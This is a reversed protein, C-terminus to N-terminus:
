YLKNSKLINDKNKPTKLKRKLQFKNLMAEFGKLLGGPYIMTTVILIVGYFVMRFESLPRFIEPLVNLAISGVIPGYITGFGGVISMSLISVSEDYRFSDPSIYGVMFAYLVGAAASYAASIMFSKIKYSKLNIGILEAADEDERIAIFARGIRSNVIKKEIIIGLIVFGSILYFFRMPSDIEFGFVTPAKIGLIGAPGKTLGVWNLLILRTIEGFAITLLVLYKGKVKLAPIAIIVGFICTIIVAIPLVIWISLNFKVHLIAAAYSGIGYFAAQGLSIQGTYGALINFGIALLSYIGIMNFLHLYYKNQVVIPLLICVSITLLHRYNITNKNKM